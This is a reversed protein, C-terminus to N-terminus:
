NFLLLSSRCFIKKRSFRLPSRFPALHATSILPKAFLQSNMAGQDAPQIQGTFPAVDFFDACVSDASGLKFELALM